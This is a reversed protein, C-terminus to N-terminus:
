VSVAGLIASNEGGAFPCFTVFPGVLFYGHAVGIELGMSRPHLPVTKIKESSASAADVEKPDKLNTREQDYDSECYGKPRNGPTQTTQPKRKEKRESTKERTNEGM